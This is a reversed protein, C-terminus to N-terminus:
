KALLYTRPDKGVPHPPSHDSSRSTLGAEALNTGAEEQTERRSQLGATLGRHVLQVVCTGLTMTRRSLVTHIPGRASCTPASLFTLPWLVLTLSGLPPVLASKFYHGAEAGDKLVFSIGQGGM